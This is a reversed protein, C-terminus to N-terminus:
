NLAPINMLPNGTWPHLTPFEGSPAVDSWDGAFRWNTPPACSNVFWDYKLLEPLIDAFKLAKNLSAVFDVCAKDSFGFWFTRFFPQQSHGVNSVGFNWGLHKNPCSYFNAEFPYKVSYPHTYGDGIIHTCATISSLLNISETKTEPWQRYSNESFDLCYLKYYYDFLSLLIM